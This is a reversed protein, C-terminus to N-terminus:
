SVAGNLTAKKIEGSQVGWKQCIQHYTGSDILSQLATMLAKSLSSGKAVPWGYPASERIEGAPAHDANSVTGDLAAVAIDFEQDRGRKVSFRVVSRSTRM